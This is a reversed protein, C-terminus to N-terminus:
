KYGSPRYTAKGGYIALAAKAVRQKNSMKKLQSVLKAHETKMTATPAKGGKKRAAAKDQIKVARSTLASQERPSVSTFVNSARTTRRQWVQAAQYRTKDWGASRARPNEATQAARRSSRLYGREAKARLVPDRKKENHRDRGWMKQRDTATALATGAKNWKYADSSMPPLSSKPARGKGSTLARRGTAKIGQQPKLGKPKGIKGSSGGSLKATM